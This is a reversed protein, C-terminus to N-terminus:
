GPAAARRPVRVSRDGPHTSSRERRRGASPLRAHPGSNRRRRCLACPWVWRLRAVARTGAKGSPLQLLVRQGEGIGSGSTVKRGTQVAWGQPSFPAGGIQEPTPPAGFRILPRGRGEVGMGRPFGRGHSLRQDRLDHGARCIGALGNAFRFLAADDYTELDIRQAGDAVRLEDLIGVLDEARGAQVREHLRVVLTPGIILVARAAPTGFSRRYDPASRNLRGSANPAGRRLPM